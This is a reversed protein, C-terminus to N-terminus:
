EGEYAQRLGQIEQQLAGYPRKVRSLYITPLDGAIVLHAQFFIPEEDLPAVQNIVTAEARDDVRLVIQKDEVSLKL